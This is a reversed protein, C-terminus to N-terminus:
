VQLCTVVCIEIEIKSPKELARAIAHDHPRSWLAFTARFLHFHHSMSKTLPSGCIEHLGLPPCEVIGDRGFLAINIPWM